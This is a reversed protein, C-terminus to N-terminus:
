GDTYHVCTVSRGGQVCARAVEVTVEAGTDGEQVEMLDLVWSPM